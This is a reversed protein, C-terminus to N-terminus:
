SSSISTNAHRRQLGVPDGGQALLQLEGTEGGLPRRQGLVRGSSFRAEGVEQLAHQAALDGSSVLAPGDRQHPQRRHRRDLREPLEVPAVGAACRLRLDCLERV